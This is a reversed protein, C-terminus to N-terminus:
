KKKYGAPCKPSIATVKKTLKGKICTITTKKMAGARAEAADKAATAKIPSRVAVTDILYYAPINSELIVYFVLLSCDFATAAWGRNVYNVCPPTGDSIVIARDVPPFDDWGASVGRTSLSTSMKTAWDKLSQVMVAASKFNLTAPLLSALEYTKDDYISSKPLNLSQSYFLGPNAPCDKTEVKLSIRVKGANFYKFMANFNVFQNPAIKFSNSFYGGNITPYNNIDIWTTGDQSFEQIFTTAINSGLAKTATALQGSTEEYSSLLAGDYDNHKPTPQSVGNKLGVTLNWTDPCGDTAANAPVQILTSTLCLLVVFVIRKM